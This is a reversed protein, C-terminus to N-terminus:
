TDGSPIQWSFAHMGKGINADNLDQRLSDGVRAGEAGDYVVTVEVAEEPNARDFVWGALEYVDIYDVYGVLDREHLDSERVDRAMGHPM